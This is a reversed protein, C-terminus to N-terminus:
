QTPDGRIMRRIMSFTHCDVNTIMSFTYQFNTNIMSFTYKQLLFMQYAFM